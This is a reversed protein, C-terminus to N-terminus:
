SESVETGRVTLNITVRRTRGQHEIVAVLQAKGTSRAVLPLSLLNSGRRLDTRWELQHEDDFGNLAVGGTVAVRITAGELDRESDILVDVDRAENLALAIGPVTAGNDIPRLVMVTIAVAVAAGLAAGLWTEWRTIFWRLPKHHARAPTDAPAATANRLARDVFGPRPEPVPLRRLARRLNESENDM